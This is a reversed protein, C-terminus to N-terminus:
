RHAGSSSTGHPCPFRQEFFAAVTDAPPSNMQDPRGKTWQVLDAIVQIRSPPSQPPCFLRKSPMAMDEENLVRFVGVAFGHCFNMAATYLPDTQAASCLDILDGTNRLLFSDQTLAARAPGSVLLVCLSLLSIWRTIRMRTGGTSPEDHM